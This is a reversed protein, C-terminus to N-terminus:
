LSSKSSSKKTSSKSRASRRRKACAKCIGSVTVIYDVAKFATFRTGRIYQDLFADAQTRTAGCDSCVLRIRAGDACEYATGKGLPAAVRRVIGCDCLLALASYVTATTVRQQGDSLRRALEAASFGSAMEEVCELVIFREPTCRLGAGKLYDTFRRRLQQKNKDTRTAM